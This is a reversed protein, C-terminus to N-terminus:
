AVIKLQKEAAINEVTARVQRLALALVQLVKLSARL